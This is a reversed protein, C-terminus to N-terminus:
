IYIIGPHPITLRQSNFVVDDYSLIDIDILRPQNRLPNIVRGMKTEILKIQDLLKLPNITTKIKITLNLFNNQKLNYMPLTEYIKSCFINQMSSSLQILRICEQINKFRDGSNTGISLFVKIM